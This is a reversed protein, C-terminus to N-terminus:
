GGRGPGRAPPPCRSRRVAAARTRLEAEPTADSGNSMGFGLQVVDIQAPDLGLTAVLDRKSAESLAIVRNARRAGLPVLLRLGARSAAPFTEPFHHYIVDLVTVVSPVPCLPPSTTGLSHVVQVRDRRLRVPLWSLEAAARLPKLRSRVPSAVFETSGAWAEAQLSEIAEPGAYVVMELNPELDRMAGLLRRAYIESGGVRGPVLYLLNVGLRQLPATM